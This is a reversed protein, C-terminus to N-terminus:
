VEKSGNGCGGSGGNIVNARAASFVPRSIRASTHTCFNKGANALITFYIYPFGAAATTYHESMGLVLMMASNCVMIHLIPIALPGKSATKTQFESDEM